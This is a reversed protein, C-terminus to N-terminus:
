FNRPDNEPYFTNDVGENAVDGDVALNDVRNGSGTPLTDPYSSPGVRVLAARISTKGSKARDFLEQTVTKNYEPALFVALNAKIGGIAFRPFYVTDDADGLPSFGTYVGDEEWMSLMDNLSELGDQVENPQIPTEAARVGLLKLAGEIIDKGTAM